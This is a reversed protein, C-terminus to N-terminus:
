AATRTRGDLRELLRGSREGSDSRSGLVVEDDGFVGRADADRVGDLKPSVRSVGGRADRNAAHRKQLRMRPASRLELKRIRRPDSLDM